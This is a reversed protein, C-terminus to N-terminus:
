TKSITKLDTEIAIKHENNIDSRKQLELLSTKANEYFGVYWGSIARVYELGYSGPYGINTKFKYTNENSVGLGITSYLYASQYDKNQLHFKSLLYYAEPKLPNVTIARTYLGTVTFNRNKQRQFCEALRLLSEYQFNIDTTKEATRLYFSVAAATQGSKEYAYGLDFNINADLPNQIFAYLKINDFVQDDKDSANPLLFRKVKDLAFIEKPLNDIPYDKLYYDGKPIFDSNLLDGLKKASQKSLTNVANLNGAHGYSTAKIKKRNDDGMWTFHWGLDEIRKNNETVYSTSFRNQFEARLTNPSQETLQAKTALVMSKDWPVIENNELYVRKDARSELFVLPVKLVHNKNTVVVNSLWNVASPRIIEDIDSCIFVCDDEFENLINCIADRQLRERTWYLVNKNDKAIHSCIDDIASVDKKSVQSLDNKIVRIKRKDLKLDEIVKECSYDKLKGSFTMNSESIVFLDVHDKLMHYRLELLEKENFYMFYDVITIRKSDPLLFKKVRPLTFIQNPLLAIDYPKRIYKVVTGLGDGEVTALEKKTEESINNILHKVEAHACSNVKKLKNATDGMWTFHWGLDQVVKGDETIAIPPYPNNVEGRLRSPSTSALQQKTCFLLSRNWPVPKNDENFLRKDASSELLVLPIKLINKPHNKSVKAIYKVGKPDLIEDIDGISFISDEPFRDLITMIGDRQTRMRCFTMISKPKSVANADHKDVDNIILVDNNTNIELFIFKNSDLRLEKIDKQARFEKPIGSFTNNSETVVFVDVVDKLMHYRLELLGSEGNYPFYDIIM